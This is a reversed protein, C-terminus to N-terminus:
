RLAPAHRGAIARREEVGLASGIGFFVFGGGRCRDRMGTACSHLWFALARIYAGVLTIQDHMSRALYGNM